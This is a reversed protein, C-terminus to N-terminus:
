INTEVWHIPFHAIPVLIRVTADSSSGPAIKLSVIYKSTHTTVLVLKYAHCKKYATYMRDLSTGEEYAAEEFRCGVSYTGDVAGISGVDMNKRSNEKRRQTRIIEKSRMRQQLIARSMAM